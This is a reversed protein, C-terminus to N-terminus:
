LDNDTDNLYLGKKHIYELVNDPLFYKTSCNMKIKKRIMSSSIEMLPVDVWILPYPSEQKSGPRNVGVFQVMEMLEDIKHWKPLYEVMDGGIVFYYDTEPNMEKLNKMTDYTYSKGQRAIESLELSLKPNDETALKLMEVRHSSDITIKKDVHPSQYSPMLYFEDLGLQASVQDSIILHGVHVPNFGGGLIGVRKRKTPKELVQEEVQNLVSIKQKM